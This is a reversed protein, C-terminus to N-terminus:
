TMALSFSATQCLTGNRISRRQGTCARLPATNNLLLVDVLPIVKIVYSLCVIALLASISSTLYMLPRDVSFKFTPGNFLWPLLLILSIFFRFFILMSIPLDHGSMKVFVSMSATSFASIAGYIVGLKINQSSAM